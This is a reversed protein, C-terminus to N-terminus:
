NEWSQIVPAGRFDQYTGNACDFYYQPVYSYQYTPQTTPNLRTWTANGTSSGMPVRLTLYGSTTITIGSMAVYQRGICYYGDDVTFVYAGSEGSLSTIRFNGDSHFSDSTLSSLSVYDIQNTNNNRAIVDHSDKDFAVAAGTDFGYLQAVTYEVGGSSLKSTQISRQGLQPLDADGKTNGGGSGGGEHYPVYEVTHTQNNRVIFDHATKDGPVADGKFGYIQLYDGDGSIQVREISKQQLSTIDSDVSVNSSVNDKWFEDPPSFRIIPAEEDTNDVIIYGDKPNVDKDGRLGRSREVLYNWTDVFFPFNKQSLWLGHKLKQLLSPKSM